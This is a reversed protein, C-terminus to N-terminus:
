HGHFVVWQNLGNECLSYLALGRVGEAKGQILMLLANSRTISATRLRSMADRDAASAAPYEEPHTHWEGLYYLGKQVHQDIARQAAKANSRYSSWWRQDGRYPGTASLVVVESSNISGFLQGGAETSYWSLQRHKATHDTVQPSFLIRQSSEPLAAFVTM